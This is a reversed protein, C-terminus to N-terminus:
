RRLRLASSAELYAEEVECGLFVLYRETISIDSHGLLRQLARIKVGARYLHKAFCHRLMHPHVRAKWDKITTKKAVKRLLYQISNVSLRTDWANVLLPDELGAEGRTEIYEALLMELETDMPIHREKQGKGHIRVRLDEFDVDGINARCLEVRRAGVKYGFGILTRNRLLEAACYLEHMEKPTLVNIPKVRHAVPTKLDEKTLGYFNKLVVTYLRLANSSIGNHKKRSLWTKIDEVGVNELTLGGKAVEDEFHRLLKRYTAISAPTCGQLEKDRLWRDITDERM